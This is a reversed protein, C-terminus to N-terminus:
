TQRLRQILEAGIPDFFPRGPATLYAVQVGAVNSIAVNRPLHSQFLYGESREWFALEDRIRALQEPAHGAELNRTPAMTAVVGALRLGPNLEDSLRNAFALFNGVTETALQDINTPVLLHTAAALAEVLAFSARPATDLIIMKYRERIREDHICEALKYRLDAVSRKYVWEFLFRTEAQALQYQAPMLHVGPIKKGLSMATDLLFEPEADRGLLRHSLSQTEAHGGARALTDSSSGQYDLDIVLVNRSDGDDRMAFFSALNVALTTKGVGGKLNGILLVPPNSQAIWTGHAAPREAEHLTWLADSGRDIADFVRNVLVNKGREDELEGACQEVRKSLEKIRGGVFVHRGLWAGAGILAVISSFAGVLWAWFAPGAPLGVVAVTEM